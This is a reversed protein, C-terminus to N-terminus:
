RAALVDFFQGKVALVAAYRQAVQNAEASREQAHAQQLDFIRRGGTFLQLTASYGANYSWPQDPLTVLRGNEDIRTRGGTSPVQRATGASLSLNPLFAAYASRVGATSTRREGLARIVATANKEALAVAEDLRLARPSAEGAAPLLLAALILLANAM